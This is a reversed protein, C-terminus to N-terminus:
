LAEFRESEPPKSWLTDAGRMAAAREPSARWQDYINNSDWVVLTTIKTADGLSYLTQRSVFGPAKSQATGNGDLLKKAEEVKDPQAWHHTLVGIM